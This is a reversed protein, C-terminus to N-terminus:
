LASEIIYTGEESSSHLSSLGTDSNTDGDSSIEKEKPNSNVKEQILMLQATELSSQHLEKYLSQLFETKDKLYLDAENLSTTNNELEKYWNDNQMKLQKLKNLIAVKDKEAHRKFQIHLKVLIEEHKELKKNVKALKEYLLILEKIEDCNSATESSISKSCMGSEKIDDQTQEEHENSSQKTLLQDNEAM